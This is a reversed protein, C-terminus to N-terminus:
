GSRDACVAGARRGFARAHLLRMPKRLHRLRMQAIWALQRAAKRGSWPKRRANGWKSGRNRWEGRPSKKKIKEAMRIQWVDSADQHMRIHILELSYACFFPPRQSVRVRFLSTSIRVGHPNAMCLRLPRAAHIRIHATAHHPRHMKQVFWLDIKTVGRILDFKRFRRKSSLVM